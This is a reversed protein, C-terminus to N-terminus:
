CFIIEYLSSLYFVGFIGAVEKMQPQYFHECFSMPQFIFTKGASIIQQMCISFTNQPFVVAFGWESTDPYQSERHKAQPNTIHEEPTSQSFGFDAQTSSGLFEM